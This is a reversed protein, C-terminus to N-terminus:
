TLSLFSHRDVFKATLETVCARQILSFTITLTFTKQSSNKINEANLSNWACVSKIQELLTEYGM